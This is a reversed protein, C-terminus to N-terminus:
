AFVSDTLACADAMSIMDVLEYRRNLLHTLFVWHEKAIALRMQKHSPTKKLIQAYMVAAKNQRLVGWQYNNLQMDVMAVPKEDTFEPAPQRQFKGM